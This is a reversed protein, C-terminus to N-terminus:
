IVGPRVRHIYFRMRSSNIAPSNIVEPNASLMEQAVAFLESESYLNRNTKAFMVEKIGVTRGFYSDPYLLDGTHSTANMDLHPFRYDLDYPSLFSKINLGMRLVFDTLRFEYSAIVEAKNLPEEASYFGLGILGRFVKKPICYAYSQVHSGLYISPDGIKSKIALQENADFINITPGVLGYGDDIPQTFREWWKESKLDEIFPGRCTSNIFILYDYDQIAPTIRVLTCYGGFDLNMNPTVIIKINPLEPFDFRSEGALVFYYDIEESYGFALFHALNDQSIMGSDFFHYVVCTRNETVTIAGEFIGEWIRLLCSAIHLGAASM